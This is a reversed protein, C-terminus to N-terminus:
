FLSYFTNWFRRRTPAPHEHLLPSRADEPLDAEGWDPKAVMLESGVPLSIAVTVDEPIQHKNILEM